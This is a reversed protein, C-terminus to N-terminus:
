ENKTNKYFKDTYLVKYTYYIMVPVIAIAAYLSALSAGIIGQTTVFPVILILLIILSGTTFYSTYEQKKIALFLMSPAGSIARVVGFVILIKLFPLIPLWEDGLLITVIEKTFILSIVGLGLSLFSIAALTKLFAKRLRIQDDSIKVFIPFAVRAIVDSIETIPLISIKYAMQYFGLSTTGLLKGILIDDINQFLYHTVGAISVWKGRKIILKFIDKNFALIPIPKIIKFSMIVEIMASIILGIVLSIESRTLMALITVGIAEILFISFRFYFEKDFKLDKQFKVVSPNIFGRILPVLSTLLLLGSASPTNFFSAIFPSSAAIIISILVGRIISVIWATNIYKKVDDNQQILFINIGTETIIEIFSLILTALGFVGFQNPSLIRALIGIRAFTIVRMAIKLL